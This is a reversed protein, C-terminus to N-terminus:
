DPAPSRFAADAVYINGQWRVRIVLPGSAGYIPSFLLERAPAAVTRVVAGSAVEVEILAERDRLLVVRAGDPSFRVEPYAGEALAPSLPRDGGASGGAVRPVGRGDVYVITDDRPSVQADHSGAGFLAAPAGGTAAVTMVQAHGGAHRTFVMADGARRFCPADDGPQDTVMRLAGGGHLSGIGIGAGPLSVAFREGDPAIAVNNPEREGIEIPRPPREGAPDMVWLRPRGTRGSVVALDRGGPIAALAIVDDSEQTLAPAFRGAADISAVAPTPHCTSWALQKGDPAIALGDRAAIGTSALSIAPSGDLPVGVLETQGPISQRSAIVHRGDPSLAIGPELVAQLQWHVRGDLGIMALGALSSSPGNRFQVIAPGDAPGLVWIVEMGPPLPLTRLTAGTAADHLGVAHEDRAWIARGDSSWRPYMGGAGIRHPPTKGDLDAVMAGTAQKGLHVFAVRDGAPSVSAAMDWGPDDQPVVVRPAAGEDLAVRYVVWNGAGDDGDYLVARGDRTFAPFEECSDGFTVRRVHSVALAISPSAPARSARARNTIWWIGAGALAALLLGAGVWWRSRASSAAAWVPPPQRVTPALDAAPSGAVERVGALNAGIPSPGVAVLPQLLGIIEDMDAFRLSRDFELAREVIAAVGPPLAPVLSGLLHPQGLIDDAAFPHRGSITEYAVVGWAFQDTRADVQGGVAQEPAMYGSTGVIEGDRTRYAGPDDPAGPGPADDGDAWKAVGFDLLRVRGDSAIMVNDPKIDRHVLNARHAAALASALHHVWRLRQEVGIEPDALVLRLSTGEVLEMAIFMQGDAEGVDFVGCINPHSLAAAARAERLLRAIASAGHEARGGLVKLAVRRGLMTDVARYIRGMGGEALFAEVRYRGVLDGEELFPM